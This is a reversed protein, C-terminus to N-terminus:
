TSPINACRVSLQHFTNQGCSINIFPRGATCLTSPLHCFILSASLLKRFTERGCLCAIFTSPPDSLPAFFNRFKISPREAVRFTSLLQCFNVRGSLLDGPQVSNSPIYTSPFFTLPLDQPQVSLKRFNGVPRGATRFTM